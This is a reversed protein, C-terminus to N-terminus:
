AKGLCIWRLLCTATEERTSCTQWRGFVLNLGYRRSQVASCGARKRLGDAQPFDQDGPLFPGYGAERDRDPKLGTVDEAKSSFRAATAVYFGSMLNFLTTKGAGNPGIVSYIRGQEVRCTWETSPWLAM